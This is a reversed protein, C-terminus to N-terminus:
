RSSARILPFNVRAIILPAQISVRLNAAAPMWQLGGALRRKGSGGRRVGLIELLGTNLDATISTCGHKM